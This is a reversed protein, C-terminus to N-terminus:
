DYYKTMNTHIEYNKIQKTEEEQNKMTQRQQLLQQKVTWMQNQKKLTVPTDDDYTYTM